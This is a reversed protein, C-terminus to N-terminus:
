CKPYSVGCRSAVFTAYPNNFFRRLKPDELYRCLCPEQEKLKSYCPKSPPRSYKPIREMCPILEFPNCTVWLQEEALAVAVVTPAESLLMATTMVAVVDLAFFSKKM